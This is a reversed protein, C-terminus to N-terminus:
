PLTGESGEASVPPEQPKDPEADGPLPFVAHEPNEAFHRAMQAELSNDVSPDPAPAGVFGPKDAM